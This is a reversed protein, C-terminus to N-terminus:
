LKTCEPVHSSPASSTALARLPGNSIPAETRALTTLLGLIIRVKVNTLVPQSRVVWKLM